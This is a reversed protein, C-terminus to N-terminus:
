DSISLEVTRGCECKVSENPEIDYGSIREGCKCRLSWEEYGGFSYEVTEWEERKVVAPHVDGCSECYYRQTINNEDRIEVDRTYKQKCEECYISESYGYECTIQCESGCEPCEKMGTGTQKDTDEIIPTASVNLTLADENSLEFVMKLTFEDKAEIKLIDTIYIGSSSTSNTLFGSVKEQLRSYESVKSLQEPFDSVISQPKIWVDIEKEDTGLTHIGTEQNYKITYNKTEGVVIQNQSM